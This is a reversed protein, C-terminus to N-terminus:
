CLRVLKCAEGGAGKIIEELLKAGDKEILKTCEHRFHGPMIHCVKALDHLVGEDHENVAKTLLHVLLKCVECTIFNANQIPLPEAPKSAVVVAASKTQAQISEFGSSCCVMLSVRGTPYDASALVALGLVIALMKMMM